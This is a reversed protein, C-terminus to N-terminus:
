FLRRAAALDRQIQQKLAQPSPFKQEDRLKEVFTLEMEKGYLEGSFDLLHAEVHLQPTSHKITPRVGINVAARYTQGAVDAHAAYVGNPPLILGAFDLNATPFGLKRGIKDGEVIKGVLSYARGLMQSAADLNGARIADRIRTSSVREGDLSVAALGHVTFKLEDGLKKLLEVHGQRKHGFTFNSGVCISHINQFDRALGRIFEEASIQSFAKDFHILLTTDIGMSKIVRLKKSLPYILSPARGPAVVSNPHCDFTVVVSVAEHQQSDSITQRIVQQHGLHVGDFVGIAV